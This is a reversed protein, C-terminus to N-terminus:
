QFSTVYQQRPRGPNGSDSGANLVEQTGQLSGPCMGGDEVLVPINRERLDREIEDATLM